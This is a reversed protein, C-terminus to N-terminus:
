YWPPEANCLAALDGHEARAGEARGREEVGDAVPRDEIGVLYKAEGRPV